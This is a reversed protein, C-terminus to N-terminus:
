RQSRGRLWKRVVTPDDDSTNANDIRERTKRYAADESAKQERKMRRRTWLAVGGWSAVLAGVVGVIIWLDTM